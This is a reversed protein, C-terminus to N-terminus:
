WRRVWSFRVPMFSNRLMPEEFRAIAKLKEREGPTAKIPCRIALCKFEEFFGM